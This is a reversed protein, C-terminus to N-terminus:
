DEEDEAPRPLVAALAEDAAECEDPDAGLAERVDTVSPLDVRRVSVIEAADGSWRASVMVTVPVRVCLRIEATERTTAGM